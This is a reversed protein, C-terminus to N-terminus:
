EGFYYPNEKTKFAAIPEIKIRKLDIKFVTNAPLSMAGNFKTSSINLQEDVFLPSIENRFIYLQEGDYYVCAFTGDITSLFDWSDKLIGKLMWETDWIGSLLTKQKVIGNHWLMARGVSAPHINKSETTPAQSHGIYFYDSPFMDIFDVPMAGPANSLVNLKSSNNFSCLSYSLQGRYANINFLEKLKEKSLSGVIACM